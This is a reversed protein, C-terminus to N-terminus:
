SAPEGGFYSDLDDVSHGDRTFIHGGERVFRSLLDHMPGLAIALAQITNVGSVTHPPEFGAFEFRCRSELSDIVLPKYIRAVVDRRAGSAGM